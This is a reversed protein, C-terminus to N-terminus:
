AESGNPRLDCVTNSAALDAEQARAVLRSLPGGQLAFEKLRCTGTSPTYQACIIGTIEGELSSTRTVHAGLVHCYVSTALM